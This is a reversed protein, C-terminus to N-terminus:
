DLNLSERKLVEELSTLRGKAQKAGWAVDDKMTMGYYGYDRFLQYMDLLDDRLGEPLNSRFAEDSIHQFRVDKGSVQSFIKAIEAWTYLNEGAAIAKGEHQEPEALMAGVWKGTDTVDILPMLTDQNCCNSIVYTEDETPSSRPAMRFNILNQMFYAPTFFSSKIPLNRIYQEIEAKVDFHKVDLEGKSIERAYPLSSWIVFNVKAQLLESCLVKAQTMEIAVTNGSDQTNTLAFVTHANALASKLSSPDDLDGQVIEAGKDRLNQAKPSSPSRTIGRVTYRMSLDPDDLVFNAVSGGQNGTVGFVILLRKDM